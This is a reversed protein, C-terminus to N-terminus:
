AEATAGETAAALRARVAPPLFGGLKEEVIRPNDGAQISLIGELIMSKLEAEEQSVAKLKNSMPIYVLNAFSVGYLTAVFAVAISHALGEPSTLSGLVNILGMVTGLIGMTPSFGGMDAFYKAGQEHRREMAELETELISRVVEPDTGDIVLLMGKRMFPDELNQAEEELSLLGERRASAALRVLLAVLKEPELKPKFLVKQVLKPLSITRELPHSLMTAGLTGGFVILAPSIGLLAGLGGGELIYGVLILGFGIALGAISAIDM